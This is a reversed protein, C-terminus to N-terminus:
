IVSSKELSADMLIVQLFSVFILIEWIRLKLCMMVSRNIMSVIANFVDSYLGIVFGELAEMATTAAEANKDAPSNRVSATRGLTATGSSSFINRALEEVSIGLLSAAKQAGAPRAFQGKNNNGSGFCCYNNELSESLNNGVLVGYHAKYCHM